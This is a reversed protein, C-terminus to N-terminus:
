YFIMHVIFLKPFKTARSTGQFYLDHMRVASNSEANSIVRNFMGLKDRHERTLYLHIITSLQWTREENSMHIIKNDRFPKTYKFKGFVKIM